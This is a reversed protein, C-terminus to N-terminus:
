GIWRPGSTFRSPTSEPCLSNFLSSTSAWGRSSLMQAGRLPRSRQWSSPAEQERLASPREVREQLRPRFDPAPGEGEQFRRKQPLSSFAPQRPVAEESHRPRQSAERWDEHEIWSPARRSPLSRITEQERRPWEQEQRHKSPNYYSAQQPTWLEKSEKVETFPTDLSRRVSRQKARAPALIRDPPTMPEEAERSRAAATQPQMPTRLEEEEEWTDPGRRPHQPEKPRWQQCKESDRAAAIFDPLGRQSFGSGGDVGASKQLKAQIAAQLEEMVAAPLQLGAAEALARAGRKWVAGAAEALAVNLGPLSAVFSLEDDESEKLSAALARGSHMARVAEQVILNVLGEPHVLSTRLARGRGAKQVSAAFEKWASDQPADLESVLILLVEDFSTFSQQLRECLEQQQSSIVHLSRLFVGFRPGLILDPATDALVERELLRLGRAELDRLLDQMGLLHAGVIVSPRCEEAAASYQEHGEPGGPASNLEAATGQGGGNEEEEPAPAPAPFPGAATTAVGEATSPAAPAPLVQPELRFHVLSRVADLLLKHYAVVLSKKMLNRVEWAAVIEASQEITAVKGHFILATEHVLATASRRLLQECKMPPTLAAVAVVEAKSAVKGSCDAGIIAAIAELLKQSAFVVVLRRQQEIARRRLVKLAEVRPAELAALAAVPVHCGPCGVFVCLDNAQPPKTVQMGQAARLVDHCMMLSKTAFVNPRLLVTPVQAKAVAAVASFLTQLLGSEKLQQRLLVIVHLAFLLRYLAAEQQANEKGDSRGERASHEALLRRIDVLSPVEAGLEALIGEALPPNLEPLKNRYALWALSAGSELQRALSEEQSSATYTFVEATDTAAAAAPVAVAAACPDDPESLRRAHAVISSEKFVAAKLWSPNALEESEWATSGLWRALQSACTSQMWNGEITPATTPACRRVREELTEGKLGETPWIPLAKPFALTEGAFLSTLEDPMKLGTLQSEEPLKMEPIEEDQFPLSKCSALCAETVSPSCQFRLHGEELFEPAETAGATLEPFASSEVDNLGTLEWISPLSAVGMMALDLSCLALPHSADAKWGESLHTGPQLASASAAIQPKVASSETLPADLLFTEKGTEVAPDVPQVEQTLVDMTVEFEPTMSADTERALGAPAVGVDSESQSRQDQVHQNMWECDKDVEASRGAGVDAETQVVGQPHRPAKEHKSLWARSQSLLAELRQPELIGAPPDLPLPELGLLGATQWAGAADHRGDAVPLRLQLKAAQLWEGALPPPPPLPCRVKMLAAALPAARWLWQSGMSPVPLEQIDDSGQGWLGHQEEALAYYDSTELQGLLMKFTGHDMGVKELLAEVLSLVLQRAEASRDRRLVALAADFAAVEGGKSWFVTVAYAQVTALDRPSAEAKAKLAQLDVDGLERQKEDIWLMASAQKVEPQSGQGATQLESLNQRAQAAQPESRQRLACRVRGALAKVRADNPLDSSSLVQFFTADAAAADTWELEEAEALQETVDEALAVKLGLMQGVNEVFATAAPPSLDKELVAVVQGKAMLLLTPSTTIQLAQCIQPLTSCNLRLLPLRGQAAARLAGVKKAVPGELDGVLMLFPSASQLVQAANQPTLELEAGLSSGPGWM